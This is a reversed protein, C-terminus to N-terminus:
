TAYECHHRWASRTHQPIVYGVQRAQWRLVDFASVIGIVDYQPSLVLLRHVGEFAMLAAARDVPSDGPLSLLFPMMISKVTTRPRRSVHFGWRVEQRVGKSLKRTFREDDTNGNLRHERVLDTMSVFGVISGHHDRVAVCNLGRELLLTTLSEIDMKTDVVVTEALPTMIERVLVPPEGRPEVPDEMPVPLRRLQVPHFSARSLIM